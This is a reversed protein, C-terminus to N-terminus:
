NTRTCKGEKEQIEKQIQRALFSQTAGWEAAGSNLLRANRKIAVETTGLMHNERAYNTLGDWFKASGYSLGTGVLTVAEETLAAALSKEGSILQAGTLASNLLGDVLAAAACAEPQAACVGVAVVTVVIHGASLVDSLPNLGTPDGGDLPSQGGYGYPEHTSEVEPDVSMFQGTTPDYERARLYILGTDSDTYQGDYGLVTSTGSSGIKNGYADYSASGAVSGTSNTLLRTSGQEDHHLYLVTGSSGVQEVPLDGAGYIYSSTGDGLLVPLEEATDWSMYSTDGSATRSSMLGDGDYSYTDEIGPAEGLGERNVYILDGAQDYGYSTAAGSAPETKVREGDENFSYTAETSAGSKASELEDAANYSYTYPGITTPNNADDYAYSTGAGGTVRRSADYTYSPEEEGPLGVTAAKTIDEDKNRTYAISALAEVGKTMKVESMADAANYAYTDEDGTGVPFITATLDSDANYSFNTTHGLWDTVSALRGANDYARGIAKGNPYTIKIPENALDYEYAVTDGHGDTTATLRDLSDYEYSTIGTGDVMKTRDGDKNYEYKVDPTAGDSYTVEILRDDPDYSYTTTRKEPDTVRILNGSRDYEKLTGRGLPDVSEIVQELVNREYKTTHKDGDTQSTVQGAGDYGTETIAGDPEKVQTQEDDANYTYSTTDGEPDTESELNGDGDYKYTTEHGLPAIVRVPRGQADRETTTTFAAAEAGVANGRPSVAASEQSDNNYSWSRKDGEPDIEAIRDGAGDYEYRWVRGLADEMSLVDGHSDYTYKTVQSAGGPAPKSITEPDGDSNRDTTTTEGDPTTTTHVDHTSDYTWKTEDGDPDVMRTRNGDEYAYETVHGDGDASTLLEDASNYTFRETTALATGYGKTTAVALGSGNLYEMTVAGTAHNTTKTTFPHYEFSTARSMPDVEEAVQHHSYTVRTKGGRGDTMETLEQSEYKFQWRLASEGPQTVSVLDGDEYAYKVVQKMPDEASEVLGESNYAFKIARGDPDTITELKGGGNYALTTANGNRDTVSELQGTGSFRYVTQDELTLRYGSSPSGILVDQTWEPATFAEGSGERFAVHSGDAQVLTALHGTPDLELHDSFSSSWGYGFEGHIGRAAAQSNYTRTLDLGVGRGGIAFDTQSQTFNGDCSVSEGCMPPELEPASPNEEGWLREEVEGLEIVEAGEQLLLGKYEAIARYCREAPSGAEEWPESPPCQPESWYPVELYGDNAIDVRWDFHPPGEGEPFEATFTGYNELVACEHVGAGGWGCGTIYHDEGQNDDAQFTGLNIFFTGSDRASDISGTEWAATGENVFEGGELRIEGAHFGTTSGPDTVLTGPGEFRANSSTWVLSHVISLESAVSVEQYQPHWVDPPAQLFTLSGLESPELGTLTVDSYETTLDADGGEITGGTVNSNFRINGAMSAYPGLDYELGESNGNLEIEAGTTTKWSDFALEGSLGGGGLELKGSNSEIAGDNDVAFSIRTPVSEGTKLVTGTNLLTAEAPVALIGPTTETGYNTSVREATITLAGSNVIRAHASGQIRGLSGIGLTGANELTREKLNVASSVSGTAGTEILITGTGELSANNYGTFADTIDVDGSGALVGQNLTLEGLTSAAGGDLQLTGPYRSDVATVDADAGSITGAAVTGNVIEIAGAMSVSSGLEFTNTSSFVIGTGAGSATWSGGSHEGVAGGGTLELKGSTVHVAGENAFAASITATGEGETKHLTGTNVFRSATGGSIDAAEGITLTGENELVHGEELSLYGSVTSTADPELTTTGSGGMYAFNGGSFAETVDLQGAGELAVTDILEWGHAGALNLRAITSTAPGELELITTPEEYSGNPAVTLEADAAEIQQAKVSAGNAISIAGNFTASTGLPYEGNNSFVIQAGAGASWTGPHVPVAGGGALELIGESVSVTGENDFVTQIIADVSTKRLEGTNILTAHGSWEPSIAKDLTLVGENILESEGLVGDSVSATAGPEVVIAGLSMTGGTWALSDALELVAPGGLDGSTETLSRADSTEAGDALDLTGGAIILEGASELSGVEHTGSTIDVTAGEPICARDSSSPVDGTSWNEGTQWLGDDASGTWADTCPPAGTGVNEVITSVAPTTHVNGAYDTIEARFQYRGNTLEETDIECAYNSGETPIDQVLCADHWSGSGNASVQLQWSAIGSGADTAPGHVTIEGSSDRELADLLGVPPTNDIAIAQTATTYSNGANDVIQARLEYEGDTFSTTALSCQYTSGSVPTSQPACASSWSSSGVPAIQATWTAVGSGPDEGTGRLELGGRVYSAESPRELTGSPPLDDVVTDGAVTTYTNGAKDTILARLQAAGEALETGNVTCQFEDGSAPTSQAPCADAWESSGDAEIQLQWSAVGSGTDAATGTVTSSVGLYSPATVSGTPPTNDVLVAIVPTPATEPPESADSLQARLDYSGDPYSATDWSCSFEGTLTPTLSSCLPQWDSEGAPTVEITASSFGTGVSVATGAVEITGSAFRHLYLSGRPPGATPEREVTAGDVEVESLDVDEAIRFTGGSLAISGGEGTWSGTAVHEPEGGGHFNLQGYTVKVSGDNNFPVDIVSLGGAERKLVEGTNSLSGGEGEEKIATNFWNDSPDQSSVDFTGSNDIQADGSLVVSGASWALTGENVLSRESLPVSGWSGPDIVGTSGASLVTSGSGSMVGGTWEFSGSVDVSGAGAVTTDSQVTLNKVHSVTMADSLTLTSGESWLWIEANPGQIEDALVDGGSLYMAGSVKTDSGWSFSGGSLAISGGEGTWSGTAVHEPEGGGHFNLQGYTVKVSGDNNFPVDIVSLGGAERKLVEGTNSLSGGEGEEKIATNFWNDSPDQSSVDFTGSNDIQADGSLVVSGASWALTGENVLSRESLPVSGWSGPDIVGTSGASLVTSGSGSMVGGTWEFSGSVDVSGAGAVTTDPYLELSGLHSPTATSTLDLTSAGGWMLITAERGQIDGAQVNGGALFVLGSMQVDSGLLFSGGSFALSGGAGALWAGNAADGVHSGGTFIIQGSVTEVTGENDIQFGIQTYRSGSAKKVTGTNHLWVNSGDEDVLGFGSLDEPPVDSDVDFTGSNDIEANSRGEVSGSSWTLTGENILGRERLSVSSGSGPSISGSGGAELRTSGTGSMTGASWTMGDAIDLAGPGTLESGGAVAEQTLEKIHSAGSTSTLDLVVGEGYLTLHADAGEINGADVTAGALTMTGSIHTGSGLSFTGPGLAIGSGWPSSSPSVWTGTNDEGASGGTLALVGEPIEEVTGENEVAFQVDTVGTGSTKALTGTNVITPVGGGGRLLGSSFWDGYANEANTDFTGSNTITAGDEGYVTGSSWVLTGENLLDRETLTVASGSGPSISASAAAELKTTGTGSMTGGTWEFSSSVDVSGAGSLVGSQVVLSGVRSAESASTLELSGGTIDLSGEDQLSGAHNTGGTVQVTTGSGICVVDDASPVSEMSWNGASQWLGDGADGTWSDTCGPDASTGAPLAALAIIALLAGFVIRTRRAKPLSALLQRM